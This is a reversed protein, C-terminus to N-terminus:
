RMHLAKKLKYQDEISAVDLSKRKAYHFFRYWSPHVVAFKVMCHSLLRYFHTTDSTLQARHLLKCDRANSKELIAGVEGDATLDM